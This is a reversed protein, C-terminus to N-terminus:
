FKTLIKQLIDSVNEKTMMMGNNLWDEIVGIVGSVIFTAEVVDYDINNNIPRSLVISEHLVKNYFYSKLKSFLNGELEFRTFTQFIDSHISIYDMINNILHMLNNENIYPNSKEFLECIETYLENELTNYLDYTDKYHM